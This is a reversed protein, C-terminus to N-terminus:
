KVEVEIGTGRKENRGYGSRSWCATVSIIWDGFYWFVSCVFIHFSIYFTCVMKKRLRRQKLVKWIVAAVVMGIVVFGVVFADPPIKDILQMETFRWFYLIHFLEHSKM